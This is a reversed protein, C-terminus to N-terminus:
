RRSVGGPCIAAAACAAASVPLLNMPQCLGGIGHRSNWFRSDQGPLCAPPPSGPLSRVPPGTAPPSGTAPSGTAPAGTVRRRCSGPCPM